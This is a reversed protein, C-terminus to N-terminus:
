GQCALPAPSGDDVRNADCSPKKGQPFGAVKADGQGTICPSDVGQPCDQPHYCCRIVEGSEGCLAWGCVCM